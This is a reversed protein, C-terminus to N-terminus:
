RVAPQRTLAIGGRDGPHPDRAACRCPQISADMGVLKGRADIQVRTRADMDLPGVTERVLSALVAPALQDVPFQRLVVRHHVHRTDSTSHPLHTAAWGVPQGNWQLQWCIPTETELITSRSSPPDGRRLPPLVKSILLWGMTILWLLGVVLHFARNGMGFVGSLFFLPLSRRGDTGVLESGM